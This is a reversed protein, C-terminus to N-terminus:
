KKEMIQAGAQDAWDSIAQIQMENLRANSHMYLYRKLPMEKSTVEDSINSLIKLQDLKSYKAWESFNLHEKAHRIDYDLLWSVPAIRGYFPYHTNNSHCDFCSNALNKRVLEPIQLQFIIDAQTTAPTVNQKIQFFQIVILVLVVAGIIIIWTKKM